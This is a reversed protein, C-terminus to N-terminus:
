RLVASQDGLRAAKWGANFAKHAVIMSEASVGYDKRYDSWACAMQVADEHAEEAAREAEKEALIAADTAGHVPCATKRIRYGDIHPCTCTM